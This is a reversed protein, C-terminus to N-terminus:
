GGDHASPTADAHGARVRGAARAAAGRAREALAAPDTPLFGWDGLETGAYGTTPWRTSCGRSRHRRSRGLRVGSGGVFLPRESRAHGVGLRAWNGVGLRMRVRTVESVDPSDSAESNATTLDSLATGTPSGAEYEARARRVEPLPSTEAVPVDWWSDHGGVSKERDVPVVIVSVGDRAWADRSRRSFPTPPRRRPGRARGAVRCQGRFRRGGAPRRARRHRKRCRYRTGFGGCGVAKSLGGISAFGHNDLLVITLKM